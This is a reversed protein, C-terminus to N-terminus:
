CHERPEPVILGLHLRLVGNYPGRHPPLRKGPELISFFATRVGPIHRLALATAPCRALNRRSRLGYGMLMFTKWQRDMSIYGVERSIDQFAPLRERVALVAEAETQVARWEAKLASLWPFLADDFFPTAGVESTARIRAEMWGIFAFIWKGLRSDPQNFPREQDHM